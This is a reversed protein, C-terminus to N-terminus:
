RIGDRELFVFRGARLALEEARLGFARWRETAPREWWTADRGVRRAGSEGRGLGGQDARLM